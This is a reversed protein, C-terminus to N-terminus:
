EGLVLVIQKDADDIVYAKKKVASYVVRGDAGSKVETGNVMVTYGSAIKDSIESVVQKRSCESWGMLVCFGIIAIACGVLLWKHLSSVDNM